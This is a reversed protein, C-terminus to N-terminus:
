GESPMSSSYTQSFHLPDHDFYKQSLFFLKLNGPGLFHISKYELSFGQMWVQASWVYPKIASPGTKQLWLPFHPTKLPQIRIPHPASRFNLTYLQSLSLTFPWCVPNPPKHLQVRHSYVILLQVTVPLNALAFTKEGSFFLISYLQRSASFHVLLRAM